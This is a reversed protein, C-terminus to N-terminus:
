HLLVNGGAILDGPQANERENHSLGNECPIFIMGTPAIGALYMADHGAGSIMDMTQYGLKDAANQVASICDEAFNVPPMYWIEDVRGQTSTKRCEADVISRVEQDVADLVQVKPHRYDLTVTIKGPVTNRSGPEVKIDGFTARGEPSYRENLRYIKELIKVAAAAPDKRREMPTTGAHAEQGEIVLDYWRMGQIGQVVGIPIGKAELIPGQEIHIEFAAKISRGGPTTKGVYGIRQLEEGLTLGNKDKGAYAEQLDFVGAYVGSGTLGPAFRAGEENTWSVIEVPHTTALNNDNLTEVVELAALVGYAGDFKGGTPQSDLHSGALVVPLDEDVGKRRAFINGVQDIKISCGASQCWKIFLDRGAKDEDSLAVRCVGGKATAGIQAMEALRDLLRDGNIFLNQDM